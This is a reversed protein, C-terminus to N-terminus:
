FTLRAPSLVAPVTRVANGPLNVIVVTSVGAPVDVYGSAREGDKGFVVVSAGCRAAVSAPDCSLPTAQAPTEAAAMVECAMLFRVDQTVVSPAVTVTYLGIYAREDLTRFAEWEDKGVWGRWPSFYPYGNHQKPNVKSVVNTGGAKIVRPTSPLLWTVCVKGNGRPTGTAFQPEIVNSYILRTANAYSWHTPGAAYWDFAQDAQDPGWPTIESVDGDIVPNTAPCLNYRPEFKTDLLSIRDYTFVKERDTGDGGRRIVVFERTFKAIKRENGALPGVQVLSSNYSSTLDSTIAVCSSDAFWANVPGFDANIGLALIMDKTNGQGKLARLGGGDSDEPGAYTFLPYLNPDIFSIVGNACWSSRRTTPSHGTEGRQILLPGDRHVHWRGNQRTGEEYNSSGYRRHTYRIVSGKNKAFDPSNIFTWDLTGPWYRRVSPVGAVTEAVAPREKAHHILWAPFCWFRATDTSFTKGMLTCDLVDRLRKGSEPTPEDFVTRLYGFYAEESAALTAQDSLGAGSLNLKGPLIALSWVMHAGVNLGRHFARIPDQTHFKDSTWPAGNKVGVAPHPIIAHRTLQWSDRLYVLLHDVTQADTMGGAHKLAYLLVPLGHRSTFGEHWERGLGFGYGM